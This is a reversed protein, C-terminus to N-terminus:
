IKEKLKNLISRVNENKELMENSPLSSSDHPIKIGSDIIGKLVAYVRSKPINRNMGIDLIAEKIKGKAAKGLTLGTLYCAALNKLHGKLNEPWGKELLKKSTLGCIVKDQADVAEIIQAIIYQNTKRVVLRPKNSVLLALRTKYDTKGELRRRKSTKM